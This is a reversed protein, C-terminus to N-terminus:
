NENFDHYLILRRQVWHDLLWSNKAYLHTYTGSLHTASTVLVVRVIGTSKEHFTVIPRLTYNITVKGVCSAIEKTLNSNKCM